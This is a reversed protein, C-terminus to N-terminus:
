ARTPPCGMQNKSRLLLLFAHQKVLVFVFALLFRFLAGDPARKEIGVDAVIDARKGLARAHEHM